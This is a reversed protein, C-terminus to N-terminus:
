AIYRRILYLITLPLKLLIANTTVLLHLQLYIIGMHSFIPVHEYKINYYVKM